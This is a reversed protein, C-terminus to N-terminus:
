PQAPSMRPPRIRPESGPYTTVRTPLSLCTERILPRCLIAITQTVSGYRDAQGYHAVQGVEHNGLVMVGLPTMRGQAAGPQHRAPGGGSPAHDRPRTILVSTASM